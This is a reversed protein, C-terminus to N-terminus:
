ELAAAAGVPPWPWGRLVASKRVVKLCLDCECSIPRVFEVAIRKSPPIAQCRMTREFQQRRVRGTRTMSADLEHEV